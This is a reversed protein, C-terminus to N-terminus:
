NGVLSGTEAFSSVHSRFLMQPGDRAQMHVCAACVYVCM